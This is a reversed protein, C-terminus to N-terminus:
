LMVHVAGLLPLPPRGENGAMCSALNSELDQRMLELVIVEQTENFTHGIFQVVDPHQLKPLLNVENEADKRSTNQPCGFVKAAATRGLFECKFVTGFSGGGLREKGNVDVDDFKMLFQADISRWKLHKALNYDNNTNQSDLCANIHQLLTERDWDCAQQVSVNAIRFGALKQL